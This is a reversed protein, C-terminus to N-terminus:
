VSRLLAPPGRASCAPRPADTLGVRAVLISSITVRPPALSPPSAPLAYPAFARDSDARVRAHVGALAHPQVLQSAHERRQPELPRAAFALGGAICLAVITPVLKRM